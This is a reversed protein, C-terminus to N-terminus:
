FGYIVLTLIISSVDLDLVSSYHACQILSFNKLVSTVLCTPRAQLYHKIFKLDIYKQVIKKVYTKDLDISRNIIFCSLAKATM